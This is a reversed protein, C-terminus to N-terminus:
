LSFYFASIQYCVKIFLVMEGRYLSIYLMCKCVYKWLFSWRASAFLSLFCDHSLMDVSFPCNWRQLSLYIAYVQHCVWMFHADRMPLSLYVVYVYLCVLMSLVVVGRYLSIFLLCNCIYEYLISWLVQLVCFLVSMVCVNEDCVQVDKFQSIIVIVLVMEGRYLSIFLMCKCVYDCLLAMEDIYLSIFLLCNCVYRCLFVLKKETFHFLCCVIVFMIVYFPSDWRQLSFYVVYVYLCVWMFLVMEGRYLSIFLMYMCVFFPSDWRQLSFYVVYVQYCVWM